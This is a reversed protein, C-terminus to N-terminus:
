STYTHTSQMLVYDGNFKIIQSSGAPELETLRYLIKLDSYSTDYLERSNYFNVQVETVEYNHYTGTFNVTYTNILTDSNKNYFKVSCKFSYVDVGAKNAINFGVISRSSSTYTEEGSTVKYSSRLTIINEPHATNLINPASVYIAILSPVILGVSFISTFVNWGTSEEFFKTIGVIVNIVALVTFIIWIALWRGFAGGGSLRIGAINSFMIVAYAVSIAIPIAHLLIFGAPIYDDIRLSGYNAVYSYISCGIATLAVISTIIWLTFFFGGETLFAGDPYSAFVYIGFTAIGVLVFAIAFIKLTTFFFEDGDFFICYAFSILASLAAAAVVLWIFFIWLSSTFLVAGQVAFIFISFTVFGAAVLGILMVGLTQGFFDEWDPSRKDLTFYGIILSIVTVCAALWLFFLWLFSSFLSAGFTSFVFISFTALGGLLLVGGVSHSVIIFVDTFNDDGNVIEYITAVIFGGLLSTLLLWLFFVWLFSTFLANIVAIFTFFSLTIDAVLLVASISIMIYQFLKIDVYLLELVIYAALVLFMGLPLLWLFLLWLRSTLLEGGSYSLFMYVGFFTLFVIPVFVIGFSATNEFITKSEDMKIASYVFTSTFIGWSVLVVSWLCLLWLTTGLNMATFNKFLFFGGVVIGALVFASILSFIINRRFLRKKKLALLRANERDEEAKREAAIRAKETEKKKKDCTSTMDKSDRYNEITLFLNKADDFKKNNLLNTAEDYVKDLEVACKDRYSEADSFKKIKDFAFYAEYYLGDNFLKMAEEYDKENKLRKNLAKNAKEIGEQYDIIKQDLIKLYAECRTIFDNVELFSADGINNNTEEMKKAEGIFANELLKKIDMVARRIM